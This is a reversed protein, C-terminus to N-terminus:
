ASTDKDIYIHRTIKNNSVKDIGPALNKYRCLHPKTEQSPDSDGAQNLICTFLYKAKYISQLSDNEFCLNARGKQQVTADNRFYVNGDYDDDDNDVKTCAVVRFQYKKGLSLGPVRAELEAAFRCIFNLRMM